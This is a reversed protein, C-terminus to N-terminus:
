ADGDESLSPSCLAAAHEKASMNMILKRLTTPRLFIYPKRRMRIFNLQSNTWVYSLIDPIMLDPTCKAPVPPTERKKWRIGKGPNATDTDSRELFNLKIGHVAQPTINLMNAIVVDKQRKRDGLEDALLLVNARRIEMAGSTGKRITKELSSRQEKTLVIRLKRYKTM